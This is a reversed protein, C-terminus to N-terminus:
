REVREQNTQEVWNMVMAKLSWAVRDCNGDGSEM